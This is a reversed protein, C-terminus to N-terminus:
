RSRAWREEGLAVEDVVFEGCTGDPAWGQRRYFAKGIPNAALVWLVARRYGASRLRALGGNHVTYGAGTGRVSPRVYLAWLQGTGAEPRRGGAPDHQGDHEDPRRGGVVAYGAVAGDPGTVVVTGAVPQAPRDRWRAAGAVPDMRDLFGGPVVGAYADRWAAVNIEAILEADAARADRV